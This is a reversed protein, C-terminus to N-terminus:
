STGRAPPHRSIWARSFASAQEWSERTIKEMVREVLSGVGFVKAGVRLDALRRCRGEGAALVRMRGSMELRDTLQNFTSSFRSEGSGPDYTTTERYGLGGRLLKQVTAPLDLEKLKVELVRTRAGGPREEDTVIQLGSMGLGELYLARTHEPDFYVHRLYDAPSCEFTHELHIDIPM